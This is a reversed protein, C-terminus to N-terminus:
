PALVLGVIVADHDSSRYPDDAYLSIIQGGSKFETNYDLVPPEDANIHWAAAGTVQGLLDTSALAYDLYGAQGFFTYTYAGAGASLALLDAYGGSVLAAIPDEMAYANLDGIILFDPDGSGTPDGGLWALLDQAAALRTLNCNGQGDGTDPDGPCPSGKSKFHNVVVTLEAGGAIQMFTQAIPVRNLAAFAGNTKLAAQGVPLVTEVRYILGVTIEDSGVVGVGPDVFDYTTNAPAAANLGDVLDQIASNPGFGDNELEILGIIDAEMALIAAIIKDRQRQFELPTDAGRPTPFSPGNFYNLVNFGAVRLEGGVDPPGDRMNQHVWAPPGVPQVRYSDFAYDLVGTLGAVSDGIRLTNGATLGPAPYLIPDPNQLSLGDDLIIRKRDNEAQVALAPAGPLALHTPQFLRESALSIEGYRGLDYNETVFLVQNFVVLMGEYKEFDDPDNVPLSVSVAAPAPPSGCLLVQQIRELQTRSFREAVRGIVQVPDGPNVPDASEVFIGDSTGPDADGGDQMFFGSLAESGQYDGIVVGEVVVTQGNLPSTSGSGQVAGISVVDAPPCASGSPTGSPTQSAGITPTTTPTGRGPTATASGPTAPAGGPTATPSPTARGPTASPGTTATVPATASPGGGPTATRTPRGDPAHGPAGAAAESAFFAGAACAFVLLAILLVVRNFHIM